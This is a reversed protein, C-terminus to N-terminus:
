SGGGAALSFPLVQAAGAEILLRSAWTATWGSDWLDDVLLVVRG